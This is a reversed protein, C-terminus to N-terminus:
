GASHIFLFDEEFSLGSTCHATLQTGCCHFWGRECTMARHATEVAGAVEADTAALAHIGTAQTRWTPTVVLHFHSGRGNRRPATTALTGWTPNRRAAAVNYGLASNAKTSAHIFAM